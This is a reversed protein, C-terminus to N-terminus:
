TSLFHLNLLILGYVWHNRNEIDYQRSVIIRGPDRSWFNGLGSDWSSFVPGPNSDRGSYAWFCCRKLVTAYKSIQFHLARPYMEPTCKRFHEFNLMNKGM